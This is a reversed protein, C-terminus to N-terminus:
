WCIIAAALTLFAEHTDDRIQWRIRQRRLWHLLAITQEIVRRHIGPGSGHAAGRRAVAPKVGTARVMRRYKDHDHGRDAHL